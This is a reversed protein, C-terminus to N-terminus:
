SVSSTARTNSTKPTEESIFFLAALGLDTVARRPHHNRIPNTSMIVTKGSLNSAVQRELYSQRWRLYFFYKFFFRSQTNKKITGTNKNRHRTGNVHCLSASELREKGM